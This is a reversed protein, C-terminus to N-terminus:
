EESAEENSTVYKKRAVYVYSSYVTSHTLSHAMKERHKLHCYRGLATQLLETM